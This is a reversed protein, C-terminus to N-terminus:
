PIKPEEIKIPKGSLSQLFAVLAAQEKDSLNLPNFDESTFQDVHKGENYHKVVEELTKMSGDHMYPATYILQRLQPSRFAGKDEEQDTVYFRGLDGNNIGLNDFDNDSFNAGAHCTICSGKGVFIEMGLKEQTTLAKNDGQLYHDFPTDNVILTREYSALAEAIHKTTIEGQFANAFLRRYEPVDKLEKVLEDLDQDMEVPNIIPGLAQEELSTARGDWFLKEYYAANLVTPTNRQGERGDVGVATARGDTFAKDVAHCTICSVENNGSLRKDFFLMKGLVVKQESVQNEVPVPVLGLKEFKTRLYDDVSPLTTSGIKNDVNQFATSGIKSLGSVMIICIVMGTIMLLYRNTSVIRKM